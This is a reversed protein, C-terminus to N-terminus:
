CGSYGESQGMANLLGLWTRLYVPLIFNKRVHERGAKALVEGYAPNNLIRYISWAAGEVSHALLGTQEHLVQKKIGGVAAAVVPRAKWMAETVTLGFGERLSKQVVVAAVRQLVNIELNATPPLDLIHIDPDGESAERVEALVQAGEPDDAAGGGALILQCPTIKKVMKYAQIVGVPDKLRDFRSVQLVIPKDLLIGLRELVQAKEEATVERNKESLPDIAPPLLYEPLGLGKAYEPLHYIAAHCKGAFSGLFRWVRHDVDVPDIHCYWIWKQQQNMVETLGLPQQDHVVVFNAGTDVKNYNQRNAERYTELMDPTVDVKVGHFANHFTKTVQFFPPTGEMVTWESKLGAEGMLPVLRALIEAVGGGVATSNIHQISAGGLKEGLAKIEDLMSQGVLPAYDALNVTAM